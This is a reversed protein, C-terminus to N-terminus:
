TRQLNETLLFASALTIALSSAPKVPAATASTSQWVASSYRGDALRVM